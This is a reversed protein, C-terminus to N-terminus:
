EFEIYILDFFLDSQEAIVTSNRYCERSQGNFEYVVKFIKDFTAKELDTKNDLHMIVYVWVGLIFPEFEIEEMEFLQSKTISNGESTIYFVFDDEISHDNRIFEALSIVLCENKENSRFYRALIKTMKFLLSEYNNKVNKLFPNITEKKNLGYKSYLSNITEFDNYDFPNHLEYDNKSLHNDFILNLLEFFLMGTANRNKSPHSPYINNELLYFFICRSLVIDADIFLSFIDEDLIAPYFGDFYLTDPVFASSDIDSQLCTNSSNINQSTQCESTLNSSSLSSTTCHKLKLNFKEFEEYELYKFKFDKDIQTQLFQHELLYHWVGLLFSEFEIEEANVIEQMTMTTGNSRCYFVDDNKICDDSAILDIIRKILTINRIAKLNTDFYEDSFEVMKLLSSEYDNKIQSSFREVYEKDNFKYISSNKADLKGYKFKSAANKTGQDAANSDKDKILMPKDELHKVGFDSLNTLDCFLQVDTHNHIRRYNDGLQYRKIIADLFLNFFINATLKLNKNQTGM